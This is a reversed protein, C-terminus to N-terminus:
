LSRNGFAEKSNPEFVQNFVSKFEDKLSARSYLELLRLRIQKKMDEAKVRGLLSGSYAIKELVRSGKGDQSIINDLLYATNKSEPYKELFARSTEAREASNKADYVAQLSKDMEPDQSKDEASILVGLVLLFSVVVTAIKKV